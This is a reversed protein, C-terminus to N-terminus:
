APEEGVAELVVVAPATMTREGHVARDRPRDLSGLQAPHHRDVFGAPQIAVVLAASGSRRGTGQLYPDDEAGAGSRFARGFVAKPKGMGKIATAGM